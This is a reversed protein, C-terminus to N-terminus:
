AAQAPGLSPELRCAAQSVEGRGHERPSSRRLRDRVQTWSKLPQALNRQLSILYLELSTIAEQFTTCLMLEPMGDGDIDGINTFSAVLGVAPFSTSDVSFTGLM